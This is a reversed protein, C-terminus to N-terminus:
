LRAMSAVLLTLNHRMMDLYTSAPGDPGSLADSYLPEGISVHTESAIQEILRPDSINEVFLTTIRYKRIQDILRAVDRASAESETNIGEPALFAIGYARAFYGFAEHSTIVIRRDAPIQAIAAKIDADLRSLKESYAAANATFVPCSSTDARCLGDRINTVYRQAFEVNQWAHPDPALQDDKMSQAQIGASAVIVKGKFNSASILRSQWGEFGLGNVVVADTETMKQVDAPKPEYVHADSNPGVIVTLAINDGGVQRVMDGIISFSAVVNVKARAPITAALSFFLVPLM